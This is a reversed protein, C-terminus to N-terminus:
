IQPHGAADPGLAALVARLLQRANFPKALTGDAGLQQAYDLYDYARYRGGGSIALIKKGPRTRRLDAIVDLGSKGPMFIDTIVLDPQEKDIVTCAKSPNFLSVVEFGYTTLIDEISGAVLSDDEVVLIKKTVAGGM